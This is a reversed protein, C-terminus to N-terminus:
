RRHVKFKYEFGPVDCPTIFDFFNLYESKKNTALIYGRNEINKTHRYININVNADKYLRYRLLEVEHKTFCNTALKLGISNNIKNRTTSGDGYFWNRTSLSTLVIDKPVIKKGDSYWRQYVPILAKDTSSRITYSTKTKSPTMRDKRFEIGGVRIDYSWKLPLEKQILDIWQKITNQLAITPTISHKRLTLWADGLILGNIIEIHKKSLITHINCSRVDTQLCGCSRTDGSTLEGINVIKYNGCSCLCLWVYKGYKNKGIPMIATLRGFRKNTLDISRGGLEIPGNKILKEAEEKTIM